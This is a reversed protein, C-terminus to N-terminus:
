QTENDTITVRKIVLIQKENNTSELETRSHKPKFYEILQIYAKMFTADDTEILIKKLREAGQETIFEGLNNWAITKTSIAGKPKYGKHGKPASM